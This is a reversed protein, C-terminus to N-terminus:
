EDEEQGLKMEFMMKELQVVSHAEGSKKQTELAKAAFHDDEAFVQQEAVQQKLFRGSQHRFEMPRAPVSEVPSVSQAM